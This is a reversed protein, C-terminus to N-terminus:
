ETNFCDNEFFGREGRRRSLVFSEGERGMKEFFAGNRQRLEITM